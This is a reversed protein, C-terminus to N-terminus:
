LLIELHSRKPEPLAIQKEWGKVDHWNYGTACDVPITMIRSNIETPITMANIIPPILENDRKTPFELLIADHVQNLLRITKTREPINLNYVNLLGHNLIDAVISQPQYAIAERLTADDDLRGFFYRTRGLPTTLYGKTQLQHQVKGHWRRIGPFRSFYRLQFEKAVEFPIHLIEAMKHPKGYYNTLHGGRKSMDRYTFHRYYPREALARDKALNGTFDIGFVMGAVLTHPDGGEHAAIYAEDEALYAVARSEAQELDAYALKYGDSSIFMRRTALHQYEPRHETDVNQLNRGTGFASKSSSWRGSETAGVNASQRIRGDSDLAAKLSNIKDYIERCALVTNILPRASFYLLLNELSERDASARMEKKKADWKKQEPLGMYEYFIEMCQKPSRPNLGKEWLAHAVLQLTLYIREYFAEYAAIIESRAALDIRIGNRMIELAPGRQAMEFDYVGAFNANLNDKSPANEDYERLMPHISQWVEHTITCDLGNYVWHKQEADLSPPKATNIITAV